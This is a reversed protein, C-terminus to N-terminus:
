GMLRRLVNVRAYPGLWVHLLRHWVYQTTHAVMAAHSPAHSATVLVLRADRRPPHHPAADRGRGVWAAVRAVADQVAVHAVRVPELFELPHATELAWLQVPAGAHTRANHARVAEGTATHVAVHNVHGSAGRVDFTLVLRPSVHALHECVVQVAVADDWVATM